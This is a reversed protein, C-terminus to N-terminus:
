KWSLHAGKPIYFNEFHSTKMKQFKKLIWSINTSINQEREFQLMEKMKLTNKRIISNEKLIKQLSKTLEENSLPQEAYVISLSAHRLKEANYYQDNGEPICIMPIGVNMAEVVSNLGCHTILVKVKPHSIIARQNIWSALFVNKSLSDQKEKQRWIFGINPFTKFLKTYNSYLEASVIGDNTFTSFSLLVNQDYKNIFNLIDTSIQNDFTPLSNGVDIFANTRPFSLELFKHYNVIVMTPKQNSYIEIKTADIYNFLKALSLQYLFLPLPGGSYYQLTGLEVLPSTIVIKANFNRAVAISCGPSFPDILAMMLTTADNKHLEKPYSDQLMCPLFLGDIIKPLKKYTETFNFPKSLAENTTIPKSFMLNQFNKRTPFNNVSDVMPWRIDFVQKPPPFAEAINFVFSLHSTSM